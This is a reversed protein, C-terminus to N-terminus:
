LRLWLHCLLKAKSSSAIELVAVQHSDTSEPPDFPRSSFDMKQAPSKSSGIPTQQFEHVQIWPVLYQNRRTHQFYIQTQKIM